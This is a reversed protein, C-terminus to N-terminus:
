WWLADKLPMQYDEMNWFRLLGPNLGLFPLFSYVTRTFLFSNKVSEM